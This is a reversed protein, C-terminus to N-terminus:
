GYYVSTGVAAAVCGVVAIGIILGVLSICLGAIAFGKPQKTMGVISCILGGLWIVWSLYPIPLLAVLALIFGVLGFINKEPQEIPTNYMQGPQPYQSPVQQPPAYSAPQQYAGPQAPQQPAGYQPAGYQPAPAAAYQPQQPAAYQPAPAAAPQGPQQPAPAAVPQQPTPAPVSQQPAPAAQASAVPKGCTPCTTAGDEVQGGCYPCFM